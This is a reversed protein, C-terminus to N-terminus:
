REDSMGRFQPDREVLLDGWADIREKRKDEYSDEDPHGVYLPKGDYLLNSDILSEFEGLFESTKALSEIWELPRGNLHAHELYDFCKHSRLNFRNRVIGQIYRIRGLYPKEAQDIMKQAAFEIKNFAKRFSGLTIEGEDDYKIHAAFSEEVGAILEDVSFRQLWRRIKVRGLGQDHIEVEDPVLQYIREVVREEPSLRAPASGARASGSVQEINM